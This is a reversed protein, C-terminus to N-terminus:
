EAGACAKRDGRAGPWLGAPAHPDAARDWPHSRDARRDRDRRARGRHGPRAACAPSWRDEGLSDDEARDRRTRVGPSIRREGGSTPNLIVVLSIVISLVGLTIEVWAAHRLTERGDDQFCFHVPTNISLIRTSLSRLRAVYPKSPLGARRPRPILISPPYVRITHNLAGRFLSRSCSQPDGITRNFSAEM